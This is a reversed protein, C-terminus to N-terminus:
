ASSPGVALRMRGRACPRANRIRLRVLWMVTITSLRTLWSCRPPPWDALAARARRACPLLALLASAALFAGALLAGSFAAGLFDAGLFDAGLLDAGLLDASAFAPVLASFDVASADSAFSPESYHALFDIGM